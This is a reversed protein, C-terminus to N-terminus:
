LLGKAACGTQRRKAPLLAHRGQRPAKRCRGHGPHHALRGALRRCLCIRSPINAKIVGTIVDVSPRQTAIILHIGAARAMANLRAIADEVETPTTAMLDSLEDIVLLILPLHEYEAEDNDPASPRPTPPPRRVTPTSTACSKEAFLGYRRVMESVAWTLTNAAKKPDTVVPALLHPIGNYVSLEVVKPDIMLMRVEEAAFPVLHEDPVANIASPSAPVPRAPSSCTPCKALDCLIPSGQIDRGLAATLPSRTNQFEASELLGRLM